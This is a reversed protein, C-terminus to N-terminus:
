SAAARVLHVLRTTSRGDLYPTVVTTGGWSRVTAAEPLEAGAHDGGKVWVQPRLARLAREPTAEDFVVVADVSSLAALVRARDTQSIVPREPGKLARVSSDSNLLVVLADGMARAADLTAVHGAHLLDFCGGTAVLRRGTARLSRGLADIADDAAAAGDALVVPGAAEARGGPDRGVFAAAAASATAVAGVVDARDLLARAAAAAFADGAGCPDGAARPVPVVAPAASASEVVLAGHEGLTVAVAATCWRATLERALEAAEALRDEPPRALVAAARAETLNPTALAVGPVPPGGRPHPDWVVPLRRAARTLAARVPPLDVVGRGYDSVLVADDAGLADIEAALPEGHGTTLSTLDLRGSDLRALTTGGSRLRRKVPVTGDGRVAVVRVGAEALLRKVVADDPSTRDDGLATLLRVEVARDSAALVAALGAGGPRRRERSQDLVPAPADPCVREVRGEVDIDLLTDGVVVLRGTGASGSPRM